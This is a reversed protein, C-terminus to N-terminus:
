GDDCNVVPLFPLSGKVASRIWWNGLIGEYAEHGNEAEAFKIHYHGHQTKGLVKGVSNKRGGVVITVRAGERLDLKAMENGFDAYDSCEDQLNPIKYGSKDYPVLYVDDSIMFESPCQWELEHSSDVFDNRHCMPVRLKTLLAEMVDDSKGYIKLAAMHDYQMKHTNIIVGGIAMGDKGRKAVERFIADSRHGGRMSTGMCLILDALNGWEVLDEFLDARLIEGGQVVPNSPDYNSGHIENLHEQPFGCHQALGDNSQQVWHKIYGAEYLATIAYHSTSANLFGKISGRKIPPSSDNNESNKKKFRKMRSLGNGSYVCCRRSALIMEALLKIKQHFVYPEDEYERSRTTGFRSGPKDKTIIQLPSNWSQDGRFGHIEKWGFKEAELREPLHIM